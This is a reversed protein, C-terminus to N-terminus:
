ECKESISCVGDIKRENSGIRFDGTQASLARVILLDGYNPRGYRHASVFSGGHLVSYELEIESPLVNMFPEEILTTQSHGDM